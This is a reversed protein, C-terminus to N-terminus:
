SQPLSGLIFCLQYPEVDGKRAHIEGPAAGGVASLLKLLQAPFINSRLVTLAAAAM